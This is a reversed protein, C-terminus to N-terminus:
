CVGPLLTTLVDKGAGFLSETMPHMSGRDDSPNSLLCSSLEGPENRDM